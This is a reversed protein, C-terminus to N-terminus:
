RSISPVGSDWHHNLTYDRVAVALFTLASVGLIAFYLIPKWPARRVFCTLVAAFSTGAIALLFAQVRAANLDSPVDTRVLLIAVGGVIFPVATYVNM